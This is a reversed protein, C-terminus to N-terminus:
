TWIYPDVNISPTMFFGRFALLYSHTRLHIVLIWFGSASLILKMIQADVKRNTGKVKNHTHEREGAQQIIKMKEGGLDIM